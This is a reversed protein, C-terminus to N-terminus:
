IASVNCLAPLKPRCGTRLFRQLENVFFFLLLVNLVEEIVVDLLYVVEQALRVGNSVDQSFAVVRSVVVVLVTFHLVQLLLLLLLCLSGSKM